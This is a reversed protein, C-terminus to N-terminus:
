ASGLRDRLGSIAEASVEARLARGIARQKVAQDLCTVSGACLWAGRGPLTRGVALAGDALRAFRV